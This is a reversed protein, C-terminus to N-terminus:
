GGGGVCVCWVCELEGLEMILVGQGCPSGRKRDSPRWIGEPLCYSAYCRCLPLVLALLFLSVLTNYLMYFSSWGVGAVVMDAELTEGSPITVGTVKGDVGVIEKVGASLYFKVGKEEHM